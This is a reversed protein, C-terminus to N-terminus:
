RRSVREDGKAMRPGMLVEHVMGRYRWQAQSRIVRVSQFSHSAMKMTLFYADAPTGPAIQTLFDRLRDGDHLVDEADLCLLYDCDTGALDLAVNRTTAFDVFPAEHLEGPVGAMLSKVLDQTGDTSGTDLILWRDIYPRVAELTKAIGAAEDKVIMCLKLLRHTM